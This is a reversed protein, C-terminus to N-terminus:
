YLLFEGGAFQLNNLLGSELGIFEFILPASFVGALLCAAMALGFQSWRLVIAPKKAVANDEMNDLASRMDDHLRQTLAPSPTPLRAALFADLAAERSVMAALAPSNHAAIFAHMAARKDTPWHQPQSGYAALAASFESASLAPMKKSM